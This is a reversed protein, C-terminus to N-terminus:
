VVCISDYAARGAPRKARRNNPASVQTQVLPIQKLDRRKLREHLRRQNSTDAERIFQSSIAFEKQYLDIGPLPAISRQKERM